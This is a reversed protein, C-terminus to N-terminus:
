KLMKRHTCTDFNHPSVLIILCESLPHPQPVWRGCNHKLQLETQRYTHRHFHGSNGSNSTLRRRILGLISVTTIPVQVVRDVCMLGGGQRDGILAYEEM